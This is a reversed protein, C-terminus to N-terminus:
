PLHELTNYSVFKGAVPNPAGDTPCDASANIILFNQDSLVPAMAETQLNGKRDFGYKLPHQDNPVWQLDSTAPTFRCLRHTSASAARTRLSWVADETDSFKVPALTSSGAWKREANAPILCLYNVFTRGAVDTVKDPADDYCTATRADTLSLRVDLNLAASNPNAADPAAGTSFRIFGSLVHYPAGSATKYGCASLLAASLSSTSIDASVPCVSVM